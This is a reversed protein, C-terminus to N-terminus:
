GLGRCSSQQELRLEVEGMWPTTSGANSEVALEQRPSGRGDM